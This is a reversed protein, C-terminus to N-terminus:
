QEKRKPSLFHLNYLIAIYNLNSFILHQPMIPDIIYCGSGSGRARRIYSIYLMKLRSEDPLRYSRPIWLPLSQLQSYRIYREHYTSIMDGDSM